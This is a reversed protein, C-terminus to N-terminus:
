PYILNIGDKDGQTLTQKKIEGKSGYGYMTNDVYDITYHDNLGFWHGQEHNLIGRADYANSSCSNFVWPVSKNMITDVDVVIGSTTYYRVYTVGLTSRSTRGWAIINEGDYSNRNKSTTGINVLNPKVVSAISETWSNFNSQAVTAINDGGVSSPVSSTNVKYTWDGAQLKWGTSQGVATSSPDTCETPSPTPTLTPNPKRAPNLSHVFVRVRVGPYGPQAYDGSVEPIQANENANLNTTKASVSVAVLALLAFSFILVFLKKM